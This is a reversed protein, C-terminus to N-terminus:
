FLNFGVSKNLLGAKQEIVRRGLSFDDKPPLAFVPYSPIIWRFWAVMRYVSLWILVTTAYPAVPRFWKLFQELLLLLLRGALLEDIVRSCLARRVQTQRLRKLCIARNNRREESHRAGRFWFQTAEAAAWQKQTCLSARVIAVSRFDNNCCCGRVSRTM